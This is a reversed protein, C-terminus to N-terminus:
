RGRRWSRAALEAEVGVSLRVEEPIRPWPDSLGGTALLTPAIFRECFRDCVQQGALREIDPAIYWFGFGTNMARAGAKVKYVMM